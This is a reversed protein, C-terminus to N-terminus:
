NTGPGISQGSWGSSCFEGGRGGEGNTTCNIVALSATL